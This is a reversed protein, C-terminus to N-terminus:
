LEDIKSKVWNSFDPIQELKRLREIDEAKTTNFSVRKVDRKETYRVDAIRHSETRNTM